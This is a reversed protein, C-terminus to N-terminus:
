GCWGAPPLPGGRHVFDLIAPLGALRRGVVAAAAPSIVHPAARSGADLAAVLVAVAARVEADSPVPPPTDIDAITPDDPPDSM